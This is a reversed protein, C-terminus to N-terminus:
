TPRAHRAGAHSLSCSYFLGCVAYCQVAYCQVVGLMFAIKIGVM